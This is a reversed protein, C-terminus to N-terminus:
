LYLGPLFFNVSNHHQWLDGGHFVYINVNILKLNWCQDSIKLELHNGICNTIEDNELQIFAYLFWKSGNQSLFSPWVGVKERARSPRARERLWRRVM